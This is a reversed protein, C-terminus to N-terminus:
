EKLRFLSRSNSTTATLVTKRDTSHVRALEDATHLSHMPENRQGRVPQPSLFPSDTELLLRDLPVVAAADRLDQAKPYTLNGAFSVCWGLGIARGAEDVTGSFCHFVGTVGDGNRDIIDLTDSWAERCHIVVPLDRRRAIDLQAIFAREQDEPSVDKWYYDLGIEGIGVIQQSHEDCLTEINGLTTELESASMGSHTPHVGVVGHCFGPYQKALEIVELSTQEDVAINVISVFGADRAREIVEDRDDDFRDFYLHAHSDIAEAPV